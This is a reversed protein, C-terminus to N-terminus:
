GGKENAAQWRRVWGSTFVEVKRLVCFRVVRLISQTGLNRFFLAIKKRGPSESENVCLSIPM